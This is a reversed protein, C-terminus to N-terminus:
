QPLKAQRMALIEREQSTRRVARDIESRDFFQAFFRILRQM